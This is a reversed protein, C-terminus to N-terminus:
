HVGPTAPRAVAHAAVFGDLVSLDLGDCRQLVGWATLAVQGPRLKDYSTVAVRDPFRDRVHAELQRREIQPLQHYSVVVGGAELVSVQQPESLPRDPPSIAIAFGGSAHWGSTPPTSSYPVPPPRDGILHLGFQQRPLEEPACSASGQAFRNVAGTPQGGSVLATVALLVAVGAVM